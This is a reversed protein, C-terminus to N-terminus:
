EVVLQDLDIFVGTAAASKKGTVKITAVHRGPAFCCFRARSQWQIRASYLDVERERAGDISVAAIGRNPAKTFVYTLAKGEFPFSVESGAIESFSITHRAPGDFDSSRTWDGTM